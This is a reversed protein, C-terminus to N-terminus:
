AELPPASVQNYLFITTLCPDSCATMQLHKCPQVAERHTTLTKLVEYENGLKMDTM